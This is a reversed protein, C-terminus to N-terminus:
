YENVSDIASQKSTQTNNDSGVRVTIGRSDGM